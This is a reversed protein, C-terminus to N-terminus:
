LYYNIIIDQLNLLDIGSKFKKTWKTFYDM